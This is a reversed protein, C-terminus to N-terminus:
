NSNTTWHGAGIPRIKGTIELMTLTQNFVVATLESKALLESSDSVGSALMELIIAEESNQALPLQIPSNSVLNLAELIDAPETIPIAGSKILNNTGVSLQSTIPGPVALISKGQELAFKVTHLSGSKQAAETVLLAEAVGAILRNRAVFNTKYPTTGEPYESLLLGGSRVINRALQTHSSPYIRDLGCPLIAITKGGAELAAQHAISDVGLALGSVIVIGRGAANTVLQTTVSRGYPSVKRSGVVALLTTDSLLNTNGIAFLEKPPGAIQKLREPLDTSKLTLKNVNM